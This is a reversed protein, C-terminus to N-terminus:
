PRETAARSLPITAIERWYYSRETRELLVLVVNSVTFNVYSFIRLRDIASIARAAPVDRNCYAITVHPHFPSSKVDARPYAQITAMRLANRLYSISEDPFARFGIAGPTGGLAGITIDFSTIRKVADRAIAEVSSLTDSMIDNKPGIRDLTMHLDEPSTFDYYPLALRNRCQEVMAHLAICDKFTIYWYYAPKDTARAWHDHLHEIAHFKELEEAIIAQATSTNSRSFDM